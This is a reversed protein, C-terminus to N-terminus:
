GRDAEETSVVSKGESPLETSPITTIPAQECMYQGAAHDCLDTCFWTENCRCGPICCPCTCLGCDDCEWWYEPHARKGPM